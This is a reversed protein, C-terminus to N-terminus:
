QPLALACVARAHSRPHGVACGFSATSSRTHHKEVQAFIIDSAAPLLIPGAAFRVVWCRIDLECTTGGRTSCRDQLLTLVLHEAMNPAIFVQLSCHAAPCTPWSLLSSFSPPLVGPCFFSCCLAAVHWGGIKMRSAAVMVGWARHRGGLMTPVDHLRVAVALLWSCLRARGLRGNPDNMWGQPPHVHFRPRDPDVVQVQQVPFLASPRCLKPLVSGLVPGLGAGQLAAGSAAAQAAWPCCASTRNEQHTQYDSRCQVPSPCQCAPHDPSFRCSRRSRERKNRACASASRSRWRGWPRKRQQRSILAAGSHRWAGRCASGGWRSTSSAAEAAWRPQLPNQEGDILTISKRPFLELCPTQSQRRDASDRGWTDPGCCTPSENNDGM